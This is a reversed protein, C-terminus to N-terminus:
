INARKHSLQSERLLNKDEDSLEEYPIFWVEVPEDDRYYDIEGTNIVKVFYMNVLTSMNTWKRKAIEQFKKKVDADVTLTIQTKM